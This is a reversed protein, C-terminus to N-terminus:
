ESLSDYEIRLKELESSLNELETKKSKREENLRETDEKTIALKSATEERLASVEQYRLFMFVVAAIAILAVVAFVLTVAKNSRRDRERYYSASRSSAKVYSRKRM